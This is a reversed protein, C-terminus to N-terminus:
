LEHKYNMFYKIDKKNINQNLINKYFYFTNPLKINKKCRPYKNFCFFGDINKKFDLKSTLFPVSTTMNLADVLEKKTKPRIITCNGFYNSTLINLDYNRIDTIKNSIEYIFNNRIDFKNIENNEYKKQLNSVLNSVFNFNNHQINAISALCGASYCYIKKDLLYEKQMINYYYWFGSYGGYHIMICDNLKSVQNNLLNYIPNYVPNYFGILFFIFYKVFYNIKM